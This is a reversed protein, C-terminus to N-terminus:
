VEVLHWYLRVMSYLLTAMAFTQIITLFELDVGYLRAFYKVPWIILVWGASCCLWRIDNAQVNNLGYLRFAVLMGVVGVVLAMLANLTIM